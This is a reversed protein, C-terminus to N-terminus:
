KCELIGFKPLIVISGDTYTFEEIGIYQMYVDTIKNDIKSIDPVYSIYVQSNKSYARQEKPVTGAIFGPNLWQHVYFIDFHYIVNKDFAYPNSFSEYWLYIIDKNNFKEKVRKEEEDRRKQEEEQMQKVAEQYELQIREREKAVTEVDIEHEKRNNFSYGIRYMLGISFSPTFTFKNNTITSCEFNGLRFYCSLDQLLRAPARYLGVQGELSFISRAESKKEVSESPFGIRPGDFYPHNINIADKKRVLNYTISSFTYTPGFSGIVGYKNTFPIRLTITPSVSMGLVGPSKKDTPIYNGYWIIETDQFLLYDNNKYDFECNCFMFNIAGNLGFGIKSETTAFYTFGPKIQLDVGKYDLKYNENEISNTTFDIVGGVNLNIEAYAFISIISFTILIFVKKM